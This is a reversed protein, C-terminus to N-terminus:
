LRTPPMPRPWCTTPCRRCPLTPSPPLAASKAPPKAATRQGRHWPVQRLPPCAPRVDPNLPQPTKIRGNVGACPAPPLLSSPCVLRATVHAEARGSGAGARVMPSSCARAMRPAAWWFTSCRCPLRHSAPPGTPPTAAPLCGFVCGVAAPRQRAPPRRAAGGVQQPTRALTVGNGDTPVVAAPACAPPLRVM